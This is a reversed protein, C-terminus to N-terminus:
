LIMRTNNEYIYNENNDQSIDRRKGGHFDISKEFLKHLECMKRSDSFLIIISTNYFKTRKKIYM